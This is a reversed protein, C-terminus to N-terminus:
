RRMPGAGRLLPRAQEWSGAETRCVLQSRQAMGAGVLVERCERGSAAAYSRALRVTAPQGDALTVRAQAGPAAQAAFAALPDQVAPAATPQTAPQGAGGFLGGGGACGALLLAGFLALQPGAARRIAGPLRWARPFTYQNMANCVLPVLRVFCFPIVSRVPGRAM